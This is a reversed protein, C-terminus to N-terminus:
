NVATVEGSALADTLQTGNTSFEIDSTTAALLGSGDTGGALSASIGASAAASNTALFAVLDKATTKILGNEDTELNVIFTGESEIGGSTLAKNSDNVIDIAGAGSTGFSTANFFKNALDDSNLLALVEDATTGSTIKFE